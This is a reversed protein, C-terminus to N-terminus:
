EALAQRIDATLAPLGAYFGDAKTRILEEDAASHPEELAVVTLGAAKAAEVGPLSDEIVLCDNAALGLGALAKLYVEPDPKIATVDEHTLMFDFIDRLLIESRIVPNIDSYIDVNARRTTTALVLRKGASKLLKLLDAAGPKLRMTEKLLRRSIAYRRAHVEAASLDSGLRKGLEGCFAEYPSAKQSNQALSIERFRPLDLDSYDVRAIESALIEDVKDWVGLSDILTGDLDFIYAKPDLFGPM